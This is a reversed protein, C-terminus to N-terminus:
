ICAGSVLLRLPIPYELSAIFPVNYPPIILISLKIINLRHLIPNHLKTIDLM